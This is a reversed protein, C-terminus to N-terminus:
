RNFSLSTEDPGQVVDRIREKLEKLLRKEAVVKGNKMVLANLHRLKLAGSFLAGKWGKLRDGTYFTLGSPAISPTFHWIPQLMGKKHTGEGISPGWYEKGYTIAPWGYNGGKRIINIEDGGRPGHEQVWIENTEPNLAM